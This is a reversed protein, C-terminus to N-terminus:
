SLRRESASHWGTFCLALAKALELAVYFLHLSSKPLPYGGILLNARKDLAPLLWVTEVLLIVGAFAVLVAILLSPRAYFCTFLLVLLFVWECKNLAGFVIRGIVLGQAMSIGPATFKLPAEMFSIAMFFGLWFIATFQRLRQVRQM